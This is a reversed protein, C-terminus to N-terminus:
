PGPGGAGGAAGRVLGGGGEGSPPGRHAPPVGNPGGRAGGSAELRVSDADVGLPLPPLAVEARGDVDATATRIVRACDGYVTVETVPAALRTATMFFLSLATSLEHM